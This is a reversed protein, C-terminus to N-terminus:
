AFDVEENNENANANAAAKFADAEAKRRKCNRLIMELKDGIQEPTMGKLPDPTIIENRIFDGYKKPAMRALAWKRTDVRLRSRAVVDHNVRVQGKDDMYIDNRGDDCIDFIEWFIAEAMAEKARAYQEAFAYYKSLWSFVASASPM